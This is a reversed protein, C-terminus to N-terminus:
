SAAEEEDADVEDLDPLLEAASAGILRDAEERSTLVIAGAEFSRSAGGTEASALTIACRLRIRVPISM